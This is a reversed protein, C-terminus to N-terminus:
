KRQSKVYVRSGSTLQYPGGKKTQRAYVDTMKVDMYGGAQLHNVFERGTIISRGGPHKLNILVEPNHKAENLLNNAKKQYFNSSEQRVRQKYQGRSEQHKRRVGWKQGKVGHHMLEELSPKDDHIM